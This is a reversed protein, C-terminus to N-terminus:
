LSDMCVLKSDIWFSLYSATKREQLDFVILKVLGASAFDMYITKFWDQRKFKKFLLVLAHKQNKLYYYLLLM